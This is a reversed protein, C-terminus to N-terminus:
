ICAALLISNLKSDPSDSRSTLVIPATAGIVVSAVRVESLYTLTKYFVNGAEIDPMLLLDPDGPVVGGINKHRASEASIANDLALPGEVVCGKIIGDRNLSALDGADVTAQMQENVVEVAAIAAVKPILIGLQHMCDVANSLISKKQNLDPAINIAVDTVGLMKHYFRTEFWAFHSLLEGKRLGWEKNLVGKILASTSCNGKMLIHANGGSIMRVSKEVALQSDTENVVDFKGPAHGLNRLQTNIEVADGILVPEIFGKDSAMCVAELAHRDHAVALVLRRKATHSSVRDGLESLKSIM